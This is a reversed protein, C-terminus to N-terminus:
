GVFYNNRLSIAKGNIVVIIIIRQQQNQRFFQALPSCKFNQLM